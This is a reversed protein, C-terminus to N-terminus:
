ADLIAIAHLESMLMGLKQLWYAEVVLPIPSLNITKEATNARTEQSATANMVCVCVRHAKSKGIADM